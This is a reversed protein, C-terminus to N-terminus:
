PKVEREESLNAAQKMGAILLLLAEKELFDESDDAMHVSPKGRSIEGVNVILAGNLRAELEAIYREAAALKAELSKTVSAEGHPRLYSEAVWEVYPAGGMFDTIKVEYVSEDYDPDFRSAMIIGFRIEGMDVKVSDGVKFDVM